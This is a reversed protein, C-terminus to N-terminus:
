TYQIGNISCGLRAAPAPHKEMQRGPKPTGQFASSAAHVGLTQSYISYWERVVM